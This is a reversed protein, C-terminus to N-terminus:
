ITSAVRGAVVVQDGLVALSGVLSAAVRSAVRM